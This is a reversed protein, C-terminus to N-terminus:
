NRRLRKGSARKLAEIRAAQREFARRLERIDIPPPNEVAQATKASARLLIGLATDGSRIPPQLCISM